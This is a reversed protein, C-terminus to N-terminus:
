VDGGKRVFHQASQIAEEVSDARKFWLEVHGTEHEEGFDLPWWGQSSMATILVELQAPLPQGAEAEGVFCPPLLIVLDQSMVGHVSVRV